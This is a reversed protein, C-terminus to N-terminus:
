GNRFASLARPHSPLSPFHFVLAFNWAVNPSDLPFGTLSVSTFTYVYAVHFLLYVTCSSSHSITSFDIFRKCYFNIMKYRCSYCSFLSGVMMVIHLQHIHLITTREQNAKTLTPHLIAGQWHLTLLWGDPVSDQLTITSTTYLDWAHLGPM